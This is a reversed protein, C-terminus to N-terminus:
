PGGLNDCVSALMSETRFWRRFRVQRQTCVGEWPRDARAVWGAHQYNASRATEGGRYQYLHRFWRESIDSQDAVLLDGANWKLSVISDPISSLRNTVRGFQAEGGNPLTTPGYGQIMTGEPGRWGIFLRDSAWGRSPLMQADYIVLHYSEEAETGGRPPLDYYRLWDNLRSGSEFVWNREVRQLLRWGSVREEVSREMLSANRNQHDLHRATEAALAEHLRRATLDARGLMVGVQIMGGQDQWLYFAHQRTGDDAIPPLTPVTVGLAEAVELPPEAGLFLLVKGAKLEGLLAAAAEATTYAPWHEEAVWLARASQSVTGPTVEEPIVLDRPLGPPTGAFAITVPKRRLDALADHSGIDFAWWLALGLLGLLATAATITQVPKM